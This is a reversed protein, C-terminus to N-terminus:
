REERALTLLEILTTLQQKSLHALQARHLALVPMNNPTRAVSGM